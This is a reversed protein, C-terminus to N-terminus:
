LYMLTLLAAASPVSLWFRRLMERYEPNVEGATAMTFAAPELAMGCKPCAGPGIQRVEPHMPCTYELAEEAPMPVRAARPHLFKAPDAEFKAACGKSCFYYTRGGHSVAGAARQPDVSMGCVPDIASASRVIPFM